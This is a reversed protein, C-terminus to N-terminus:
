AWDGMMIFTAWYFPHAYPKKPDVRFQTSASGKKDAVIHDQTGNLMDLQAERLAEAKSLKQEQHLQYFDKMLIATSKDAVPWLTALVSKAGQRQATVGFGEIERGDDDVGGGMGTECASLTLLDVHSFDFNQTRIDGLTLEQGDGMLLFSNVETGPSFVFHSAIHLVPFNQKTAEKLALSTFNNDLLIEGPLIGESGHRVIGDVEAQVGPLAPFDRISHTVGM